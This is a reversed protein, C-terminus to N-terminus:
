AGRRGTNSIEAMAGSQRFPMAYKIDEAM